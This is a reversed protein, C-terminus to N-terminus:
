DKKVLNSLVAVLLLSMGWGFLIELWMLGRVAIGPFLYRNDSDVVVPAWDREQQLDVLPLILDLSYAFGNFTTYEAPVATCNIWPVRTAAFNKACSRRIEKNNHILPNTPAMLGAHAASWYMCGAFVSVAAMWFFAMLPRYGFGALEGYLIYLPKTLWDRKGASILRKQKEIAVIKADEDHGMERLTKVLQEWPQPRFDGHLHSSFQRDLWVVRSVADTIGDAISNYCFGDLFHGSGTQWSELDDALSDVRAESLDVWGSVAVFRRFFFIRSVEVGQLDLATRNATRIESDEIHLDAGVKVGRLRVTGSASFGGGLFFNGGVVANDCCLADDAFNECQGGDCSFSGDIKAELFLVEGNAQFNDDLRVNGAVKAGDFCLAYGDAKDFKGNSCDLDGGVSIGQLRVGGSAFFGDRLFISGAVHLRDGSINVVSSGGLGLTDLRAGYASINGVIASHGVFIPVDTSCSDLDIDGDIWAGEVQVGQEHIATSEDGGLILFRLFGARIRNEVTMMEPRESSIVAAIGLRCAEKLKEEAPLLKGFDSLSRGFAKTYTSGIATAKVM